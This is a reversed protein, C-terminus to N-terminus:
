LILMNKDSLSLREGETEDVLVLDEIRVGGKGPLYVGPEVTVVMGPTLIDESGPKLRPEEHVEVGVGHGTNHGFCDRYGAEAIVSRATDDVCAATNEARVTNLAAVQAELTIDYIKRIEEEPEGFFITRTMDSCYHEYICGMDILLPEKKRIVRDSTRHHPIASNPGSAVICPFSEGEAGNDEYFRRILISVDKETMGPRVNQTLMTMCADNIEASKKVLELEADDKVMRLKKIISGADELRVHKMCERLWIYRSYSISPEFGIRLKGRIEFFLRIQDSGDNEQLVVDFEDGIQSEAREYYRSDTMFIAFDPMIILLSNSGRFGTFYFTNARDIILMGDLGTEELEKRLKDIRTRFYMILVKKM